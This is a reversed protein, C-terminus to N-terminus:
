VRRFSIVYEPYMQADHYAVFIEPARADDVTSDFRLYEKRFPPQKMESSGQCFEGVLVRCALVTRVGSGNPRAYKTMMSYSVDSAFYTGRGLRTGNKGCASRNFGEHWIIPATDEDLGHWLNCREYRRMHVDSTVRERNRIEQRKVAYAKWLSPNQVREVKVIEICAPSMLWKEDIGSTYKSARRMSSFLTRELAMRESSGIPLAVLQAGAPDAMPTWTSPVALPQQAAQELMRAEIAAIKERLELSRRRAQANAQALAKAHAAEAADLPPPPPGVPQPPAPDDSDDSDDSDLIIHKKREAAAAKVTVPAKAPAAPPCSAGDDDNLDVVVPAAPPCSSSDDDDNLDIVIPAAANSATTGLAPPRPQLIGSYAKHANCMHAVWGPRGAHPHILNRCPAGARTLALCKGPAAPAMPNQQPAQAATADDDVHIVSTISRSEHHSKAAADVSRIAVSMGSKAQEEAAKVVTADDAIALATSKMAAAFDEVAATDAAAQATAMMAAAVKENHRSLIAGEKAAAEAVKGAAAKEAAVADQAAASREVAASREM